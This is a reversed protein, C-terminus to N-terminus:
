KPETLDAPETPEAAALQSTAATGTLFRQVDRTEAALASEAAASLEEFRSLVVQGGTWSWIGAARGDVLAFPRFLGNVTVIDQHDGLIDARSAWGLLVPDYAGLLRPEPMRPVDAPRGRALEALGDPRDQLEGAIAALGRRAAGLPLGAWKALDRDSAPGHGALYRRALEALAVDPERAPPPTGLWDRVHVYAHQLGAMPGRVVAGRMSALAVIHLPINDQAPLGAAALIGRLQPGTLPGQALLAAEVVSVGKEAGAEDLGGRALMRRVTVQLSPRMTLQHLWWYDETRVLHLTGRNLWTLVLSRDATLARDVDAATLGSTRARIALRAGRGDQGQIALLREAVQEPAAAPNGALLQAAFRKGAIALRAASTEETVGGDDGAGSVTRRADPAAVGALLASAEAQSDASLAAISLCM